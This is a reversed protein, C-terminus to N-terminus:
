KESSIIPIHQNSLLKIGLRTRQLGNDFFVNRSMRAFGTFFVSLFQSSSLITQNRNRSIFPSPSSPKTASFSLRSPLRSKPESFRSPIIVYGLKCYNVCTNPTNGRNRRFEHRLDVHSEAWWIGVCLPTERDAAWLRRGNDRATSKPSIIHCSILGSCSFSMETM